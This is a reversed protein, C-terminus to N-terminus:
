FLNEQKETKPPAVFKVLLDDEFKPQQDFDHGEGNQLQRSKVLQGLADRFLVCPTQTLVFEKVAAVSMIKGILRSSLESALWEQTYGGNLFMAQQNSDDRDSFRFAGTKDVRWMADKMEELGRINGTCFFLWYLLQNKSDYMSFHHVYKAGGRSALASKYKELLFRDRQDPPLQIADRWEPGGFSADINAHKTTDSIFRNLHKYELYSFVECHPYKMIKTILKMPVASYGFQDLFVLAPGFIIGQKEHAELIESLKANCDGQIPPDIKVKYSLTAQSQYPKLTEQLSQFRAGDLEIFIYRIPMQFETSHQLAAKIAIVPSGDEGGTYKGPGAFGDVYLVAANFEKALRVM